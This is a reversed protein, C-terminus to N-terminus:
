APRLLLLGFGFARHRGVGRALLAAFRDPDRVVLHGAFVAEPGRTRRLNRGTDRCHVPRHVPSLRFSEMTVHEAAAGGAALRAQLWGAYVEARTPGEGPATGAVAALFADVERVKDRDGDRDSRLTPRVRVSFGLRRGAAFREPMAKGALSALGAAEAADPAAFAAAQERLVAAPHASYALLAPPRRPPRLLVFPQPRLADFVAALLAHLAYGLDDDDRPLVRHEAAWRLLRRMDPQMQILSLTM